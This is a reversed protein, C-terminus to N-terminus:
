KIKYCFVLEQDRLYLHGNAIVPPTWIKGGPKRLTSKQPLTFRGKEKYEKAPEVLAVTGDEESFLYLLGDAATLSGVGLEKSTWVDKLTKGDICKWSDRNHAGYLYKDLLVVGGVFNAFKRTKAAQEAKFEAGEKTVKILESGADKGSIFVFGDHYTPTAAFIEDATLAREYKWLTKGDKASIGYVNEQTVYIYQPVDGITVKIPSSYTAQEKIDTTRWVLDGTKKNVAALLGNPGGPALILNDGDVLPSWSYGWGFNDAGGGVPNVQAMMDKPLNKKWKVAGSKDTCILDGQSGLAFILDGDVSPTANPGASWSNGKFDFMPGIPTAWLKKGSGDLAILHEIEKGKDGLAGMLYIKDGIVAPGGFGKGSVNSQWLLAPGDKPWTKLLGTEKSINTRDPGRWQSWDDAQVSCVVVAFLTLAGIRL